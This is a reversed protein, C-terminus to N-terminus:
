LDNESFTISLMLRLTKPAKGWKKKGRKILGFALRAGEEKTGQEINKERGGEM